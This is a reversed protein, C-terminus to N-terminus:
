PIQYIFNGIFYGFTMIAIYGGVAMAAIPFLKEREEINDGITHDSM